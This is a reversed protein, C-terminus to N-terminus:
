PGTKKDHLRQVEQLIEEPSGYVVLRTRTRGAGQSIELTSVGSTIELAGNTQAARFADYLRDLDDPRQDPKPDAM